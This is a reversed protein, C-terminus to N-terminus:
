AHSIGRLKRMAEKHCDLIYNVADANFIQTPPIYVTKKELVKKDMFKWYCCGMMLLQKTDHIVCKSVHDPMDYVILVMPIISEVHPVFREYANTTLGYKINGSADQECKEVAKLQFLFFDTGTIYRHRTQSGKLYPIKLVRKVQGDIGYDGEGEPTFHHEAHSIVARIYASHLREKLHSEPLSM